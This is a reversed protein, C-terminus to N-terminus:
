LRVWEDPDPPIQEWLRRANRIAEDPTLGSVGLQAEEGDRMVFAVYPGYGCTPDHTVRIWLGPHQTETAQM